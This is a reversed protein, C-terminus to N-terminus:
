HEINVPMMWILHPMQLSMFLQNSIDCKVDGRNKERMNMRELPQV